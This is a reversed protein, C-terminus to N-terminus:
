HWGFYGDFPRDLATVEMAKHVPWDYAAAPTGELVLQGAAWVNVFGNPLAHGDSGVLWVGHWYSAALYVAHAVILAFCALEVPRALPARAPHTAAMGFSAM